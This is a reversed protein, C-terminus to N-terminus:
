SVIRLNQRKKKKKEKETSLRLSMLFMKKGKAQVRCLDLAKSGALVSTGM